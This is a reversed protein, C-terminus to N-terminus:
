IFISNKWIENKKKKKWKWKRIIKRNWFDFEARPLNDFEEKESKKKKSIGIQKKM